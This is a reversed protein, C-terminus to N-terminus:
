YPAMQKGPLDVGDANDAPEDDMIRHEVFSSAGDKEVQQWWSLGFEHAALSTIVDNKGDGDVDHVLMQAGGHRESFPFAHRKWTAGGALSEPQQWWGDKLLVDARGDGDVDGVGLGHTFRQLGLDESLPHFTWPKAPSGREPGAWGLRGGSLFVLEPEGDGTLDTWEPSEHDVHAFVLHREWHREARGDKSGLPNAYWAAAEGPFGVFLVDTWGDGDFDRPFAFFNDSYGAPDFAQPPYLERKETFEPGRYWYPGSVVDMKGDRDFDACSAGECLFDRALTLREFAGDLSNGRAGSLLAALLLSLM